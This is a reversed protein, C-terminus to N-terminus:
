SGACQAAIDRWVQDYRGTPDTQLNSHGLPWDFWRRPQPAREYLRRGVAMPVTKDLSGHLFWVPVAVQDIYRISAMRQSGLLSLLRGAWGAGADAVDPFSTFSSELVLACTNPAARLRSALRVAVASGMSHGYIVWRVPPSASGPQLALWATWADAHISAEDPIRPSSAGWGRYDLLYVDFGARQMPEAKGLNQFAHRLTGHLYLVRLPSERGPVAPWRLVQVQEGPEGASVTLAQIDPRQALMQRWADASAVATPRYLKERQWADFSACGGLWASLLLAVGVCLRRRPGDGPRDTFLKM